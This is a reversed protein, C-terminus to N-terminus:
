HLNGVLAFDNTEARGQWQVAHRQFISKKAQAGRVLMIAKDADAYEALLAVPKGNANGSGFLDLYADKSNARSHFNPTPLQRIQNKMVGRRCFFTNKM